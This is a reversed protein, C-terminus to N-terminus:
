EEKLYNIELITEVYMKNVFWMCIGGKPHRVGYYNYGEGDTDMYPIVTTQMLIYKKHPPYYALSFRAIPQKQANKAYFVGQPIVKDLHIGKFEKGLWEIQEGDTEQFQNVDIWKAYLKNNSM